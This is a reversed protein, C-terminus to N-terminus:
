YGGLASLLCIAEPARLGIMDCPHTWIAPFCHFFPPVKPSHPEPPPGVIRWLGKDRMATGVASPPRNVAVPFERLSTGPDPLKQSYKSGTKTTENYGEALSFSIISEM